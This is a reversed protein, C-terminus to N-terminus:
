PSRPLTLLRVQGDPAAQSPPPPDILERWAVWAVRRGLAIQPDRARAGPTSLTTAGRAAEVLGRGSVGARVVSRKPDGEAWTLAYQGDRLSLQPDFPAASGTPIEVPAPVPGGPVFRLLKLRAAAATLDKQAWVVVLHDGDWALAPRGPKRAPLDVLGGQRKGRADLRVLRLRDGQRVVVAGQDLRLAVAPADAVPGERTWILVEHRARGDRWVYALVPHKDVEAGTRDPLTAVGLILSAHGAAAHTRPALRWPHPVEDVPALQVRGLRKGQADGLTVESSEQTYETGFVLTAFRDPLAVAAGLDQHYSPGAASSELQHPRHAPVFRRPTDTVDEGVEYAEVYPNYRHGHSGAERCGPDKGRCREPDPHESWDVVLLARDDRAVLHIEDSRRAVILGPPAPRVPRTAVAADPRRSTAADVGADPIRRPAADTPAGPPRSACAVLLSLGVSAGLNWTPSSWRAPLRRPQM